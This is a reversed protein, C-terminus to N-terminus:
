VRWGRHPWLAHRPPASVSRAVFDFFVQIGSDTVATDGGPWLANISFDEVDNFGVRLLKKHRRPFDRFGTSFGKAGVALKEPAHGLSEFWEMIHHYVTAREAPGTARLGYFAIASADVLKHPVRRQRM